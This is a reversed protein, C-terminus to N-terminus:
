CTTVNTTFKDNMTKAPSGFVEFELRALVIGVVDTYSEDVYNWSKCVFPRNGLDCGYHKGVKQIIGLDEIKCVQFGKNPITLIVDASDVKWDQGSKVLEMFIQVCDADLNMMFCEGILDDQEFEYTNFHLPMFQLDNQIQSKGDDAYYQLYGSASVVAQNNNSHGTTKTINEPKNAVLNCNSENLATVVLIRHTILSFFIALGAKLDM